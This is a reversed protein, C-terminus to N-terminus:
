QHRAGRRRFTVPALLRFQHSRIAVVILTAMLLLEGVVFFVDALNFALTLDYNTIVLPNPVWNGDARASVICAVNYQNRASYPPGPWYRTEAPTSASWSAASRAATRTAGVPQATM